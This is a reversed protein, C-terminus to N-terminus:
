SHWTTIIYLRHDDLVITAPVKFNKAFGVPRHLIRRKMVSEFFSVGSSSLSKSGLGRKKRGCKPVFWSDLYTATYFVLIPGCFV